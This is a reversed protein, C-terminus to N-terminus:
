LWSESSSCNVTCPISKKQIHQAIEITLQRLNLLCFSVISYNRRFISTHWLYSSRLIFKHSYTKIFACDWFNFTKPSHKKESLFIYIKLNSFQRSKLHWIIPAYTLGPTHNLDDNQTCTRDNSNVFRPQLKTM